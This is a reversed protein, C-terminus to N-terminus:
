DPLPRIRVMADEVVSFHNEWDSRSELSTVVKQAAKAPSPISIRFLIIGCSAKAGKHFVLEGFDKDFTLLLRSETLAKELVSDDALGPHSQHIWLVDHGRSRLLAVCDGPVNENACLRV